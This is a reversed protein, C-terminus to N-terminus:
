RGVRRNYPKDFTHVAGLLVAVIAFIVINSM